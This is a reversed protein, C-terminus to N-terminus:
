VIVFDPSDFDPDAFDGLGITSPNFDIYKTKVNVSVNYLWKWLVFGDFVTAITGLTGATIADQNIDLESYLMETSEGDSANNNCIVIAGPYGLFLKPVDFKNLIENETPMEICYLLVLLKNDVLTFSETSGTYVQRYQVEFEITSEPILGQTIDGRLENLDNAISVDININGAADGDSQLTFPLINVTAYDKNVCQLEVYYNKFYNIYGSSASETYDIDLTIDTATIALVTGLCDYTFTTGEAYVYVTDGAVLYTTLDSPLNIKIGGTGSEISTIQLDERKFVFNVARFGAFLKKAASGVPNTTLTLSM